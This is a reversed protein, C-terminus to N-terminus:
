WNPSCYAISLLNPSFTSCKPLGSCRLIYSLRRRRWTDHNVGEQIRSMPEDPKEDNALPETMWANSDNDAVPVQDLQEVLRYIIKSEVEASVIQKPIWGSPHIPQM